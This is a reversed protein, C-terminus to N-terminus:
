LAKQKRLGNQDKITSQIEKIWQTGKQLCSLMSVLKTPLQLEECFEFLLMGIHRATQPAELSQLTPPYSPQFHPIGAQAPVM